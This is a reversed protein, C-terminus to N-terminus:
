AKIYLHAPGWDALGRKPAFRRGVVEVVLWRRLHSIVTRLREEGDEYGKKDGLRKRRAINELIQASIGSVHEM